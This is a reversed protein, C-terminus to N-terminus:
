EVITLLEEEAAKTPEVGSGKKGSKREQYQQLTPYRPASKALNMRGMFFTLYEQAKKEYSRAAAQDEEAGSGQELKLGM